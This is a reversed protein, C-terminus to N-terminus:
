EESPAGAPADMFRRWIENYLEKVELSLPFVIEANVLMEDTPHVVPDSLIDPDITESAAEVTVAFFTENVIQAAVEPRLLYNIFLEAGPQNTRSVPIVLSELWLLTGEQPIVYEIESSLERGALADYAWGLAISIRGSALEGASTWPDFEELFLARGKLEILRQLAAELEEPNDTNASYGLSRLALGIMSRQDDWIGAQNIEAGWLDNWSIVQKGFLDKRVVLGTTGWSYPVSYRNDPDFSLDRFSIAISRMNPINSLNLEALLGMEILQGVYDTGLFVVDYPREAEIDDAAQDYSIFTQYDTKVGFEETFSDLISQPLGDDWGYIVISEASTATATSLPTASTSACGTLALLSVVIWHSFRINLIRVSPEKKLINRMM